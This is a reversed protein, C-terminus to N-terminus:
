KKWLFLALLLGVNFLLSFALKITLWFIRNEMDDILPWLKHHADCYGKLYSGGATITFQIVNMPNPNQGVFQCHKKTTMLSFVM